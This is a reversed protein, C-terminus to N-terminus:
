VAAVPRDGAHTYIYVYINIIPIEEVGIIFASSRPKGDM